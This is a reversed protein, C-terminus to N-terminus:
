PGAPWAIVDDEGARITQLRSVPAGSEGLFKCTGEWFPASMPITTVAGATLTFTGCVARAGSPGMLRVRASRFALRLSVVHTRDPDAADRPPVVFPFTKADPECSKDGAAPTVRAVHPGPGLAHPAARVHELPKGDVELNAGIPQVVFRVSRPGTVVARSASDGLLITRPPSVRLQGLASRAITPSPRAADKPNVSTDPSAPRESEVTAAAAPPEQQAPETSSRSETSRKDRLLTIAVTGGLLLLGAAALGALRRRTRLSAGSDRVSAVRKLIALDDPALAHARNFDDAALRARGASRHAEGRELLKAVLQPRHSENFRDPDSFYADVLQMPELTSSAALETRLAESFSRVDPFRDAPRTALARDVVASYAAGVTPRELVAPRYEGELVRRLVQAPNKGEFPLHGVLAEYLVVGLGFVDAREDVEGAEIQEPAMHAPSGLVQGTSTVGQADLLKAIGFDTLKLSVKKATAEAVENAVEGRVGPPRPSREHETANLVAVLVNEPKIDRHVIGLDHAHAVAEALALVLGAAVEPPLEQHEDLVRRLTRGRVLEVILYREREDEASVDYVEVINPHRLRAVTRAEAVFRAAVEAQDRLHRHILKVAVERGLRRDRARYVSAMGGHGIEELLEYKELQPLGIAPAAESV